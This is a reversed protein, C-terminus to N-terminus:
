KKLKRGALNAALNIVLTIIILVVAVSFALDFDARVKAYVYLAVSLTSGSASFFSELGNRFFDQMQMSMGVTYLLVASEGVIRGIALICGTVIGDISSPLVVTRIMHWKGSGLGLSGERYSAPVTKLSEQTTRIVTPLTMIVLTFAGAAILTKGLALSEAFILVGVLAYIISPIGALTETAFEIAAVLKRNTAYETLYIASGVGLPLVVVLTAIIVYLTNLIAPGIGQVDRVVSEESTLFEWTLNPLGRYLIYGLLFVLLAVVIAAAIYILTRMGVNYIRRRASLGQAAGRRSKQIAQNSSM